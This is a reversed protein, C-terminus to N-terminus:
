HWTTEQDPRSMAPAATPSYTITYNYNSDSATYSAGSNATVLTVGNLTGFTGVVADSLDNTLIFFKDTSLPTYSAVAVQLNARYYQSHRDCEGPQLRHRRYQRHHRVQLTIRRGHRPNGGAPTGGGNVINLIGPANTSAVGPQLMANAAITVQGGGAVALGITGATSGVGGGLTTGTGSINYNGQGSTTGNVLVTGVTAATTGLYLNNATM